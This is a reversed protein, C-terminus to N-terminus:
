KWVTSVMSLLSFRKGSKADVSERKAKGKGKERSEDEADIESDEDLEVISDVDRSSSSSGSLIEQIQLLKDHSLTLAEVKAQLELNELELSSLRKTLSSVHQAAKNEASQSQKLLNISTRKASQSERKLRTLDKQMEKFHDEFFRCFESGEVAFHTCSEGSAATYSCPRSTNKPFGPDRSPIKTSDGTNNYKLMTISGNSVLTPSTTVKSRISSSSSSSPAEYEVLSLTRIKVM